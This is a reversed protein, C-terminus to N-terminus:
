RQLLFIVATFITIQVAHWHASIVEKQQTISYNEVLDENIIIESDPMNFIAIRKATNLTLYIIVLQDNILNEHSEVIVQLFQVIFESDAPLKEGCIELQLWAM